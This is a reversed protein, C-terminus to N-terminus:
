LVIAPISKEREHVMIQFNMMIKQVLTRGDYNVMEGRKLQFAERISMM